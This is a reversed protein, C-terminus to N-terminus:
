YLKEKSMKIISRATDDFSKQTIDIADKSYPFYYYKLLQAVHLLYKENKRAWDKENLADFIMQEIDFISKPNYTSGSHSILNKGLMVVAKNHNLAQYALTSVLTVTIDAEKICEIVNANKLMITREDIFSRDQPPVNPHPKFLIYWDNNHALRKLYMLADYSDIFFPSHLSSHSYWVPLMGTQWDNVGAYFIIKKGKQKLEDILKKVNGTNLQRKRDFSSERYGNLYQKTNNLETESIKLSNFQTSDSIVFSEALEGQMDLELTDAIAGEHSFIIPISKEDSLAKSLHMLSNWQHWVIIKKPAHVEFLYKMKIFEDYVESYSEGWLKKKNFCQNFGYNFNVSLIFDKFYKNFSFYSLLKYLIPIKLSNLEVVDMDTELKFLSHHIIKLKWHYKRLSKDIEEFCRLKIIRDETDLNHIVFFITNDVPKRGPFIRNLFYNYKIIHYLHTLKNKISPQKRTSQNRSNIIGNCIDEVEESFSNNKQDIYVVKLVDTKEISKDLVLECKWGSYKDTCLPSIRRFGTEAFQVFVDNIYLAIEKIPVNGLYFGHVTLVKWISEYQINTIKHSTM